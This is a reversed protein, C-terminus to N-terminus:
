SLVEMLNDLDVTKYKGVKKVASPYKKEIDQAMPGVVKPYSKPDGKYRYSYIPIDGDTLKTIDTKTNRDSMMMLMPLMQLVGLGMTAFDPGQKESTSTKNITETKGYPSMGLAALKTNLQEVPYNWQEGWRERDAGIQSQKYGQDNQGAGILSQVDALVNQMKQQGAQLYGGGINTRGSAANGFGSAVGQLNSARGLHGQGVGLEGQATGQIGQATGLLGQAARGYKERDLFANQTATDL